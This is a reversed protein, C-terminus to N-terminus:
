TRPAACAFRLAPLDYPADTDLGTPSWGAATILAEVSEIRTLLDKVAQEGTGAALILVDCTLELVPPDCVPEYTGGTPEVIATVTGPRNSREAIRTPFTGDLSARLAEITGAASM